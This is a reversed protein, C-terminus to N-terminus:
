DIGTARDKGPAPAEFPNPNQLRRARERGSALLFIPVAIGVMVIGLFIMSNEKDAGAQSIIKM